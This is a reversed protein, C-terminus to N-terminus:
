GRPFLKGLALNIAKSLDLGYQGTPDLDPDYIAVDMGAVKGSELLAGVFTTLEELDFGATGPSDVAPMYRQDLVDADIHLWARQIGRSAIRNEVKSLVKYIGLAQAEQATIQYIQTSAIEHFPYDPEERYREGVQLVDNDQVLPSRINRWKTLLMEGRGTALALDMGAASGLRSNVDYNGPHFFDSHGDLYIIGRGGVRRLGYLCGLINSCDGGVVFPFGRSSLSKRVASALALSYKRLTQGNRIRTGAEAEVHYKPRALAINMRVTFGKAIGADLLAKPARWTGAIKETTDPRLGLNSPSQIIDLSLRGVLSRFGSSAMLAMGWIFDRRQM